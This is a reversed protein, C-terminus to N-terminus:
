NESLIPGILKLFFIIGSCVVLAALSLLAPQLAQLSMPLWQVSLRRIEVWIWLLAVVSALILTIKVASEAFVLPRLAQERAAQMELIRANLWVQGADPLPNRELEAKALGGLMETIKAMERCNPCEALHVKASDDWCGTPASCLVEAEHSCGTEKM